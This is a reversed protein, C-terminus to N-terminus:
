RGSDKFYNFFEGDPSMVLVDGQKGLSRRYAQMGRYFSFFEPDRGFAQSYIDAAAADGEGKTIEADRYAAALIETRQRDAEARTRESV